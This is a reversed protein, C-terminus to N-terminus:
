TPRYGPWDALDAGPHHFVGLRQEDASWAYFSTIPRIARRRRVPLLGHEEALADGDLM